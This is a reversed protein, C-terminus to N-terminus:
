SLCVFLIQMDILSAPLIYSGTLVSLWARRVGNNVVTSCLICNMQYRYCKVFSYRTNMYIEEAELVVSCKEKVEEVLRFSVHM